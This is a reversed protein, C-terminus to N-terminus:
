RLVRLSKARLSYRLPTSLKRHEGDFSVRVRKKSIHIDLSTTNYTKLETAEHRKGILSLLLIKLLASRRSSNVVYVSLTGKDLDQRNMFNDIDYANNGVFIFPTQFSEGNIAVSYRKFLLFAKVSAFLAAPWKGIYKEIKSRETLSSPYLGISSNNLFIHGNIDAADISTQTADPLNKIATDLNQDIGLDKTFHNLTGGPLPAFVSNTGVLKTAVSRLTGDGGYGVITLDQVNIYQRINQEFDQTIDILDIVDISAASFKSKLESAPLSSGSKPNYVIVAKM